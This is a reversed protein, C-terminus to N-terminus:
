AKRFGAVEDGKYHQATLRDGQFSAASNNSSAEIADSIWFALLTPRAAGM